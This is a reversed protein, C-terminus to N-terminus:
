IIPQSAFGRQRHAGQVFIMMEFHVLKFAVAALM